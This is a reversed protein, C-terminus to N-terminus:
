PNTSSTNSRGCVALGYAKAEQAKLWHDRDCDTQIKEYTQETNAA